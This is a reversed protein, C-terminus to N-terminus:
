KSDVIKAGTIVVPDVPKSKERGEAITAGAAIADVVDQGEVVRGFVTYGYGDAAEKRNLFANDATNIFFQSTASNPDSTRAMAVTYKDNVLGNGGENKVPARTKKERGPADKTYGGGQIMFDQVVRHFITGAYFGEEVYGVFNKVTAPAREADLELKIDGKSTQLLVYQKASKASAGASPQQGRAPSHLACGLVCISMLGMALTAATAPRTPYKM